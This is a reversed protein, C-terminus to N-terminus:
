HRINFCFCGIGSVCCYNRKRVFWSRGFCYCIQGVFSNIKINVNNQKGAVRSIYLTQDVKLLKEITGNKLAKSIIKFVIEVNDLYENIINESYSYTVATGTRALYGRSLMEQTFLTQIALSNDYLFSFNPISTIGTTKIKLSSENALNNWGNKLMNGYHLLKDQVNEQEM